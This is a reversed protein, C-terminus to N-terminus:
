WDSTHGKGRTVAMARTADAARTREARPIRSTRLVIAIFWPDDVLYRRWLRRPERALRYLWEFGIRSVWRPARRQAGAVFDISAGVALGVTSGIRERVRDLWLEQKPSGFGALLLHPNVTRIRALVEHEDEAQGDASLRPADVGVVNTGLERRMREAATAAVGPAGGILYVRWGREAALRALPIILDSGSVKAPLPTGLMRAAWPIPAGDALALAAHSYANRLAVNRNAAVVHDVNPTFVLGGEGREVLTAIEDLAGAFSLGDVWLEGIRIRRHM